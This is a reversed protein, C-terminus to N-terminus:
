ADWPVEDILFKAWELSKFNWWMHEIVHTEMWQKYGLRDGFIPYLINRQYYYLWM